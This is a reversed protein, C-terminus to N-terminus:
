RKLGNVIVNVSGEADDQCSARSNTRFNDYSRTRQGMLSNSRRNQSAVDNYTLSGDATVIPSVGVPLDVASHLWSQLAHANNRAEKSCGEPMAYLVEVDRYSGEGTSQIYYDVANAVAIMSNSFSHNAQRGQGPKHTAEPHLQLLVSTEKSYSRKAPLEIAQIGADRLSKNLEAQKQSNHYAVGGGIAAGLVGGIVNNKTNDKTLAAGVIAGLLSSEVVRQNTNGPRDPGSPPAVCASTSVLAAAVTLTQGFRKLAPKKNESLRKGSEIFKNLMDGVGSLQKM